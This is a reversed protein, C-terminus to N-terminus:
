TRIKPKHRKKKKKEGPGMLNFFLVRDEDSFPSYIKKLRNNRGGAQELNNKFVAREGLTFNYISLISWLIMLIVSWIVLIVLGVLIDKHSLGTFSQQQVQLRYVIRPFASWMNATGTSNRLFCYYHDMHSPLVEDFQLECKPTVHVVDRRDNKWNFSLDSGTRWIADQTSNECTLPDTKASSCQLRLNREGEMVLREVTFYRWDKLNPLDFTQNVLKLTEQLEVFGTSKLEPCIIDYEMALHYGVPPFETFIISNHLLQRFLTLECPIYIFSDNGILRFGLQKARAEAMRFRNLGLSEPHDHCSALFEFVALLVKYFNEIGGTKFRAPKELPFGIYCRRDMHVTFVGCRDLYVDDMSVHSEMVIPELKENAWMTLKELQQRAITQISEFQKGSDIRHVRKTLLDLPAQRFNPPRSPIQDVHYWIFNAPHSSSKTHTCVYTGMVENTNNISIYLDTTSRDICPSTSTFQRLPKLKNQILTLNSEYNIVIGEQVFSVNSRPVYKWLFDGRPEFCIPCYLIIQEYPGKNGLLTVHHRRIANEMRQRVCTANSRNPKAANTRCNIIRGITQQTNMMISFVITFIIWQTSFLNTGALFPKRVM